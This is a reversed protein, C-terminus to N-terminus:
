TRSWWFIYVALLSLIALAVGLITMDIYRLWAGAIVVPFALVLGVSLMGKSVLIIAVVLYLGFLLMAGFDKGSINFKAGATDVLDTIYAGSTVDYTTDADFAGTWTEADYYPIHYGEQFLNPRVVELDPIGIAFRVGGAENLAEGQGTLTVVYTTDDFTEMTHATSIVWRDLAALDDGRWDTVELQYSATPNGAFTGRLKMYYESGITLPTAEDACLYIAGPRNGWAKCPISAILTVSDIDYLRLEFYRTVDGEPYYPEYTNTYNSVFLLDNDELYGEFVVTSDVSILPNGWIEFLYDAGGVNITWTIGGDASLSAVANALGGGSDWYWEIYNAADGNEARVVLAFEQSNELETETLDFEYWTSVLAFADGDLTKSLIDAGTPKHLANAYKLSLIVDGPNGVRKLLVRASTITHSVADTTFQQAAWRNGYIDDGDADGGTNLYEYIVPSGTTSFYMNQGYGWADNKAKFRYFYVTAPSLGTLKASFTDDTTWSGVETYSSGYAPTLGYDFGVETIASTGDDDIYGNAIAWIKGFGTVALTTLEPAGIRRGRDHTTDANAAGTASLICYYWRGEGTAPATVDDFPDTTAGALAGYGADTDAASRQWAYTIVGTTRYGTDSDSAASYGSANGAKVTYTHHTGDAVSEGAISLVVKAAFAGDTANAIGPTIVGADATDDDFTAVDGLEGLGVGDQFVEYKTAYDSKTWTIVVKDTHAGDTAAVDTPADPPPITWEVYLSPKPTAGADDESEIRSGLGQDSNAMIGIAFWDDDLQDQIDADALAGLDVELNDGGAAAPFNGPDVYTDGAEIAAHLAADAIASPQSGIMEVIRYDAGNVATTSYIFKSDTIIANGPIASIDWEIYGRQNDAGWQSLKIDVDTNDRVNDQDVFGDETPNDYTGSAASVMLTNNPLVIFTAVLLAVLASRWIKKVM